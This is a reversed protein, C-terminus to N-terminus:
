ETAPAEPSAEQVQKSAESKLREQAKAKPLSKKTQVPYSKKKVLNFKALIKYVSDTPIAGNSLWYKVKDEKLTYKTADDKSKMPDYKGVVEIHKGDRPSKDTAVVIHYYPKKKAGWRALRMKVAM